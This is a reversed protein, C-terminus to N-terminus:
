LIYIYLWRSFEFLLLLFSGMRKKREKREKTEKKKECARHLSFLVRLLSASFFGDIRVNLGSVYEFSYLIIKLNRRKRIYVYINIYVTDDACM